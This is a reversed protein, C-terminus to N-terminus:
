KQMMLLLCAHGVEDDFFYGNEARTHHAGLDCRV